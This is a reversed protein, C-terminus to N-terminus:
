IKMEKLTRNHLNKITLLYFNLLHVGTYGDSLNAIGKWRQEQATLASCFTHLINFKNCLTCILVITLEIESMRSVPKKFNYYLFSNLSISIKTHWQHTYINSFDKTFCNPPSPDTIKFTTM